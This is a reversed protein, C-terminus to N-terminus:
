CRRGTRPTPPLEALQLYHNGPPRAGALQLAYYTFDDMLHAATERCSWRGRAPAM